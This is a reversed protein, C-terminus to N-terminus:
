FIFYDLVIELLSRKKGASQCWLHRWNMQPFWHAWLPCSKGSDHIHCLTICTNGWLYYSLLINWIFIQITLEWIIESSLNFNLQSKPPFYFPSSSILYCSPLLCHLCFIGILGLLSCVWIHLSVNSLDKCEGPLRHIWIRLASWYWTVRITTVKLFCALIWLPSFSKLKLKTAGNM